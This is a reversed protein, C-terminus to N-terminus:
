TDEETSKDQTNNQKESIQMKIINKEGNKIHDSFKETQSEISKLARTIRDHAYISKPDLKLGKELWRIGESHFGRNNFMNGINHLIWDSNSDTLREAEKATELAMDYLDLNVCSNSLYGWYESKESNQIKLNNLLYLAEEDYGQDQFERALTFTLKENNAHSLHCRMLVSLKKDQDNDFLKYLSLAVEPNNDPNQSELLKISDDKKDSRDYFSSLLIAVRANYDTQQYATEAVQLAHATFGEFDLLNAILTSVDPDNEHNEAMLLLEQAADKKNIKTEIFRLWVEDEKNSEPQKAEIENLLVNKADEFDNDILHQLWSTKSEDKSSDDVPEEERHEPHLLGIKSIQDKIDACAAGTAAQNSEDKRNTEYKAPTVGLLDSPIRIDEGDPAIFFVRKRGLKGIFLGIEFIINDRVSKSTEKRIKTIDDPSFVFIGFDMKELCQSLSEIATSSIEFVGQDWVTCEATHRLNQQIAYAINIGEVSSGIFVSPKM